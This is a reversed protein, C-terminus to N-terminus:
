SDVEAFATSYLAAGALTLVGTIAVRLKSSHRSM